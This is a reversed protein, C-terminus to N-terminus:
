PRTFFLFEDTQTLALLLKRVDHGSQAFAAVLGAEVCPDRAGASQGYAFDMWHSALCAQTDPSESLKRVLEIPGPVPEGTDPVAGSADITVGNEKERYLGVPDYNEFALGVPDMLLHCSACIPDEKHRTFRERATKGSYPDPPKAKALIEGQPLPVSKCMLKRVVFSGRLVPNTHNSPTTGAMLGGQTLLGLRRAPDVPVKRFADGSIGTMGYFAALPGNVFTYPAVLVSPWTHTGEFIEHELLRQTEERMYAGITGSYTPFLARDRELGGLGSIPLLSDFFFRVVPRARPDDLLRTASTLVGEPTNLEGAKAAARLREDPMSGWFLYSLRTAMEDGTPRRLDPRRPDAVGWEVRYLFDPSQLVAEIVAALASPLPAKARVTKELAVLENVEAATVPRRYARTAFSTVFSRVCGDETMPTAAAACPSLRALAAPETARAAIGEAVTGLQEVLLSSVSLAEADNGFGNAIEDSPLSRAPSTTDGLLDRVTNDYEFRTLRRLPARGARVVGPLCKSPPPTVSTGGAGAAGMGMGGGM